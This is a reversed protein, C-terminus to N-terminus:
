LGISDDDDVMELGHHAALFEIAEEAAHQVVESVYTRNERLFARAEDETLEYRDMLWPITIAGMCYSDSSKPAQNAAIKKDKPTTM